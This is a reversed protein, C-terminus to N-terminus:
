TWAEAAESIMKITQGHSVAEARVAEWSQRLSRVDATREVFTGHLQNDLYGIEDADPPTALVFAGNLGPYAGVDRPVLHLHVRTRSGVEVLHRLQDRMVKPGGVPREIVTYDLVAVLLPPNPRTLVSQRELRAAVQQEMPEGVLQSAGEHLARAYDETQLLGPVVLPEFSCLGTAEREIAVWERFWPLVVERLLAARIRLLLGDAGLVADAREAFELRPPRRCQEVAAVLSASYNIKEGLAEQSLGAATRLRRLEGAFLDFLPSLEM